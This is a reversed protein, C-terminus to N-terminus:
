YVASKEIERVRDFLVDVDKRTEGEQIEITTMREILNNHKDQKREIEALRHLILAETAKAQARNTILCVALTVGAAILSSIITPDMM